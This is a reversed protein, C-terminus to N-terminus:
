AFVLMSAGRSNKRPKLKTVTGARNPDAATGTRAAVKAELPRRVLKRGGPGRLDAHVSWPPSGPEAAERGGVLARIRLRGVGQEDLDATVQVDDFRVPATARLFVERHIGAHFWHDQDELFTGDCYRM